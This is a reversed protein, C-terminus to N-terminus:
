DKGVWPQLAELQQVLQKRRLQGYRHAVVLKAAPLEVEDEEDFDVEELNKWEEFKAQVADGDRRKVVLTKWRGTAVPCNVPTGNDTLPFETDYSVICKMKVDDVDVVYDCTPCEIYPEEIYPMADSLPEPLFLIGQDVACAAVYKWIEENWPEDDRISNIMDVGALLQAVTCRQTVDPDPMNNNLAQIINEFVEWEHWPASSLLLTRFAQIKQWNQDSISTAKFDDLISVYLADGDWELFELGYKKLLVMGLAVPHADHWSFFRMIPESSAKVAAPAKEPDIDLPVSM